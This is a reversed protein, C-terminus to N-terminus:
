PVGNMTTDVVVPVAIDFARRADGTTIVVMGAAIPRRGPADGPTVRMPLRLVGGPMPQVGEVTFEIGPCHDPYWRGQGGLASADLVLALGGDPTPLVQARFTDPVAGPYHAPVTGAAIRLRGHVSQREMVCRQRCAMWTASAAVDVLNGEWAPAPLVPILLTCGGEYGILGEHGDLFTPIPFLPPGASWGKPLSLSVTPPVGSTGPNRWYMHWGADIAFQVGVFFGGDPTRMLDPGLAVSGHSDPQTSTPVAHQLGVGKGACGPIAGLVLAALCACRISPM